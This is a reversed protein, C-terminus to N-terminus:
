LTAWYKPQCHPLNTSGSRAARNWVTTSSDNTAPTPMSSVVTSGIM